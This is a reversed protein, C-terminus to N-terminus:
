PSPSQDGLVSRQMARARALEEEVSGLELEELWDIYYPHECNNLLTSCLFWPPRTHVKGNQFHKMFAQWGEAGPDVASQHAPALPLAPPVAHDRTNGKRSQLSSSTVPSADMPPATSESTGERLRSPFCGEETLVPSRVLRESAGKVSTAPGAADAGGGESTMKAALSQERGSLPFESRFGDSGQLHPACSALLSPFSPTSPMIRPAAMVAAWNTSVSFNRDYAIDEELLQASAAIGLQSSAQKQIESLTSPLPPSAASPQVSPAGAPPAARETNLLPGGDRSKVASAESTAPTAYLWSVYDDYFFPVVKPPPPLPVQPSPSSSAGAMPLLAPTPPRQALVPALLPRLLPAGSGLVGADPDGLVPNRLDGSSATFPLHPRALRRREEVARLDPM